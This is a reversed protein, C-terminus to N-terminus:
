IGRLKHTKELDLALRALILASAEEVAVVKRGAEKSCSWMLHDNGTWLGFSNRIYNGLTANLDVIEEASMNAITVRDKLPLVDILQRVAEAVTRPLPTKEPAPQEQVPYTERGLMLFSFLTDYVPQYIHADNEERSGTVYLREPSHKDTWIRLHFAGQLPEVAALDVHFCPWEQALAYADLRALREDLAGHSFIVAADASQLNAEDKARGSDFSKQWLKYRRRLPHPDLMASSLTYGGYPIKLRIAVDLAASEAGPAGSSIIKAITM